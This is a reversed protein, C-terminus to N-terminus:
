SIKAREGQLIIKVRKVLETSAGDVCDIEYPARVLVGSDAGNFELVEFDQGKWRCTMTKSVGNFLLQAIRSVGMGINDAKAMQQQVEHREKTRIKQLVADSLPQVLDPPGAPPGALRVSSMEVSGLKVIRYDALHQGVTNEKVVLTESPEHLSFVVGTIVEQGGKLQLSIERGSWAAASPVAMEFDWASGPTM